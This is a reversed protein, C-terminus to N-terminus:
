SVTVRKSDEQFDFPRRTAEDVDIEVQRKYGLSGAPAAAPRAVRKSCPWGAVHRRRRRFGGESSRGAERSDCGDIELLVREKLSDVVPDEPHKTIYKIDCSQVTLKDQRGLNM